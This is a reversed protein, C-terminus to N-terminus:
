KGTTPDLCDLSGTPHSDDGEGKWGGFMYILGGIDVAYESNRGVPLKYPLIRWTDTEFDYEEIDDVDSYGVMGGLAYLKQGCQVLVFEEKHRVMSAMPSWKSTRPDFIHWTQRKDVNKCVIMFNNVVLLATPDVFGHM